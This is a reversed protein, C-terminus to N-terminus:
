EAVFHSRDTDSDRGGWQQPKFDKRVILALACPLQPPTDDANNLVRNNDNQVHHMESSGLPVAM